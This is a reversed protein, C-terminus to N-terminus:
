PISPIKMTVPIMMPTTDRSFLVKELYSSDSFACGCPHAKKSCVIVAKLLIWEYPLPM